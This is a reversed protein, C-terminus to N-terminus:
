LWSSVPLYVVVHHTLINMQWIVRLDYLLHNLPSFVCTHSHLGEFGFLRWPLGGTSPSTTIAWSWALLLAAESCVSCHPGECFSLSVWLQWRCKVRPWALSGWLSDNYSSRKGPSPVVDKNKSLSQLSALILVFIWVNTFLWLTWADHSKLM